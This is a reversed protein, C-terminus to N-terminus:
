CTPVIYRGKCDPHSRVRGGFSFARQSEWFESLSSSTAEAKIDPVSVSLFRHGPLFDTLVSIWM